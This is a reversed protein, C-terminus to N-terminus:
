AKKKEEDSGPHKHHRRTALYPPIAVTPPPPTATLSATLRSSDAGAIGMDPMSSTGLMIGGVTVGVVFGTLFAMATGKLHEIFEKKVAEKREGKENKVAEKIIGSIVGGLVLAGGIGLGIVAIPNGTVLSAGVSAGLIGAGIKTWTLPQTLLNVFDVVHDGFEKFAKIPHVFAYVAGKVISYIIMLLNMAVRLPLKLLFDGLKIYWKGKAIRDLWETKLKGPPSKKIANELRSGFKNLVKQVSNSDDLKAGEFVKGWKAKVRENWQKKVKREAALGQEVNNAATEEPKINRDGSEKIRHLGIFPQNSPGQINSADTMIEEMVLVDVPMVWGM